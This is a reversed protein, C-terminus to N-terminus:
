DVTAGAFGGLLSEREELDEGTVDAAAENFMQLLERERERAKEREIIQRIFGAKNKNGGARLELWADTESAIRVSIQRDRATVPM